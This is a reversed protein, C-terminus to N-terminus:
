LHRLVPAAKRGLAVYTGGLGFVLTVALAAGIAVAVVLPSIQFGFGMAVAVVSWAVLTGSVLAVAAALLGLILFELTLASMVQRRTAGLTKLIVADRIRREQGAAFAAALVLIATLIAMGSAAAVGVALQGILDDVAQLQDKVRISTVTPFQSNIRGLLAMERAESSGAPFAVTALHGVPAGKFTNPSFVMFFNIGFTSWTVKRFNAVQVELDRGLVNVKLRDGIKLGLDRGLDTELSVLPVGAYDKPWWQGDVLTSNKPLDDAFTLGRDGQLIFKARAPLVVQDIRVGGISAIRGRLMPVREFQAEPAEGAVLASFGEIDRAGIDLFFFSPVTKPLQAGLQGRLNTEIQGLAVILALGLGLSLLVSATAAGPRYLNGIALRWEVRHPRPIRRALWGIAAAALRLVLFIVALAGLYSAAITRDPALGIVMAVLAVFVGVTAAMLGFPPRLRSPEVGDRFLAQPSMDLTRGLPWLAFAAATLFGYLAALALDTPSLLSSADVPLVVSLFRAGFLTLGVGGLCGLVVGSLTVAAVQLGYVLFIFPGTAGLCKMVAIVDQKSSVFSRVANAVGVGGVVLSTLGVLTLFAAFNDINASLGPSADFRTRIEWGAEPQEIAARAKIAAIGEATDVTPPLQLRYTWRVLSGPQVLGTAALGEPALLLRPGFGVGGGIKDPESTLIGMLAITGTGLGIRDGPKVGLRVTLAREMLAGFAGDPQRVLLKRWDGGEVEAKVEGYLPYAADVSKVEVLAQSPLPSTDKAPDGEPMAAASPDLRRAMARLTAVDSVRGLTGLWAREAESAQRQVLSFTLDAGLITRGERAITERMGHALSGVAAIAAVGLAICAVFVRFGRLGGRMERRVFRGALLVTRLLTM